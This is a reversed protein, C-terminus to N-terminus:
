WEGRGSVSAGVAEKDRRQNNYLKLRMGWEDFKPKMYWWSLTYEADIQDILSKFDGNKTRKQLKILEADLGTDGSTEIM